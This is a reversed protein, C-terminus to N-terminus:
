PSEARAPSLAREDALSSRAVLGSLGARSRTLPVAVFAAVLLLNALLEAAASVPLTLRSICVLLGYLGGVSAARLVRRLVSSPQPWRPTLWVATQGLSAGTSRIAPVIFVLLAPVLSGLVVEFAGPVRPVDGGVAILVLRYAVTLTGGIVMFLALDIAMGLWRRWVTIPRPTGRAARLARERPMWALVAPGLLGGILAGLTNTMVDDVDALRYACSYIGWLATYQTAEILVSMALGAVVTVGLGRSFFGRVIVGLPVFLVVNFVVQLTVSSLLTGLVGDGATERAIDSVFHFPVLQISPECVKETSTPLPVLTYAALTTLYVSVAAAGLLRLGTFRGYLRYQVAVIPFFVVAFLGVGFLIGIEASWTWVGM